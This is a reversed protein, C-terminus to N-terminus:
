WSASDWLIYIDGLANQGISAGSFHVLSLREYEPKSATIEAEFAQHKLIKKAINAPDLYSEDCAVLM